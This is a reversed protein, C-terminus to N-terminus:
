SKPQRNPTSIKLLLLWWWFFLLVFLIWCKNLASLIGPLPRLTKTICNKIGWIMTCERLSELSESQLRAIAWPSRPTFLGILCFPFLSFHIMWTDQAKGGPKLSFDGVKLKEQGWCKWWRKRENSFQQILSTLSTPLFIMCFSPLSPPSYFSPPLSFSFLFISGMKWLDQLLLLPLALYM